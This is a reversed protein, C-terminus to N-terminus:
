KGGRLGEPLTEPDSRQALQVMAMRLTLSKLPDANTFRTHLWGPNICALVRNKWCDRTDADMGEVWEKALLQREQEADPVPALQKFSNSGCVRAVPNAIQDALERLRHSKPHGHHDDRQYHRKIAESAAEPGFPTLDDIIAEVQEDTLNAGGFYTLLMKTVAEATTETQM